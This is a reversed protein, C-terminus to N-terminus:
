VREYHLWVMGDPYRTEELLRFDVRERGPPFFPKGGGVVVPCVWIRLEDILDFVSAALTPGSVGLLGGSEQKLRKVEDLADARRVLRVGESVSELTDSFVIRPTAVYARAFEAEIEGVDQSGAAAAPWFSEMLEYTRRGFLFAETEQANENARRHVEDGPTSWGFDGQEDAVYGDLSVGMSYILRAV